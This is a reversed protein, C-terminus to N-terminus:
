GAGEGLAFVVGCRTKFVQFDAFSVAWAVSSEEFAVGAAPFKTFGSARGQEVAFEAWLFKDTDNFVDTFTM